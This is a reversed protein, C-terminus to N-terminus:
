KKELRTTRSSLLVVRKQIESHSKHINITDKELDVIDAALKEIKNNLTKIANVAAYFMEDWRIHLYGDKGLTVATPFVKQLDQAIVGVHPTKNEDDKFTYTYPKLALIESLGFNNEVFNDKLRLDSSVHLQPCPSNFNYSYPDTTCTKQGGRHTDLVNASFPDPKFNKRFWRCTYKRRVPRWTDDRCVNGGRLNTSIDIFNFGALDEHNDLAFFNGRVVLNSNLVASASSFQKANSPSSGVDPGFWPGTFNGDVNHIELVSRGAFGGLPYGGLFVRDNGDGSFETPTNGLGSGSTYGVCTRTGSKGTVTFSACTDYGVATINQIDPNGSTYTDYGIITNNKANKGYFKSGAITNYTAYKDAFGGGTQAGSFVNYSGVTNSNAISYSGLAINGVLAESSTGSNSGVFINSNAKSALSRASNNGVAIVHNESDLSANTALAYSGYAVTNNASVLSNAVGVGAATNYSSGYSSNPLMSFFSSGLLLNNKSDVHLTGANVGDGTGYRFQIQRQPSPSNSARIVVKASKNIQDAPVVKPNLGIFASSTWGPVGPDYFADMMDDNTVYNWVSENSFSAGSRRKTIIPALAAFLVAIVVLVILLETLSFAYKKYLKM